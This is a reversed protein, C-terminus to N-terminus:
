SRAFTICLVLGCAGYTVSTSDSKELASRCSITAGLFNHCRRYLCSLAANASSPLTDVMVDGGGALMPLDLTSLSQLMSLNGSTNQARSLIGSAGGGFLEGLWGAAKGALGHLGPVGSGLGGGPMNDVIVTPSKTGV